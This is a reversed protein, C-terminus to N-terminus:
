IRKIFKMFFIANSVRETKKSCHHVNARVYSGAVFVYISSEVLLEELEVVDVDVDDTVVLSSSGVTLETHPLEVVVVVEEDSSAEEVLERGVHYPGAHDSSEEEVVSVVWSESVVSSTDCVWM